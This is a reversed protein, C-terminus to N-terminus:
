GAALAGEQLRVVSEKVVQPTFRFQRECLRRYLGGEAILKEHPGIQVIRGQELVVIRDAHLITSLRHAIVISTRNHMLRKLADQILYESESDLASTAEDLVLVRPDGLFARAIAVRQRQGGSLKAGREGLLTEYGEPLKDIFEDVHAARAVRLMDEASADPRGYLINDRISGSFLITDQAVTGIQSRLSRLTVDRLDIGDISVRGEHPDFFRPILQALTTKGAGSLGVLAIMEGPQIHLDINSLTRRDATYGFSANDFRVEGAVRALRKAQPKERVEPQTDFVEFVREIAAFSSHVVRNMESIRNIPFYLQQTLSIFAVVEGITAQGHFVRYGGYWLLALTAIETLWHVITSSFINIHSNNMVIHH